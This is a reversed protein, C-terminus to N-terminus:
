SSRVSESPSFIEQEIGTPAYCPDCREEVSKLEGGPNGGSAAKMQQGLSESDGEVIWTRKLVGGADRRHHM